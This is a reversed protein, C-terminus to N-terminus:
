AHSQLFMALRDIAQIFFDDSEQVLPCRVDQFDAGDLDLGTLFDVRRMPFERHQLSNAFHVLPRDRVLRQTGNVPLDHRARKESSFVM